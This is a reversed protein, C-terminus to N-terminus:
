RFRQSRLTILFVIGIITFLTGIGGFIVMILTSTKEGVVVFEYLNDPNYKLPVVQGVYYACPNTGVRYTEELVEGAATYEFVPYYTQKVYGDDDYSEKTYIDVVRATTDETCVRKLRSTDVAMFVTFAVFVVGVVFFIIGIFEPHDSLDIQFSM